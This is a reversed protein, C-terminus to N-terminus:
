DSERETQAPCIRMYSIRHVRKILVRMLLTGIGMGRYEKKVAIAELWGNWGVVLPFSLIRAM